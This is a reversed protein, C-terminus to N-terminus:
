GRLKQPYERCLFDWAEELGPTLGQFSISVQAFGLAPNWRAFWRQVRSVGRLYRDPDRVDVSLFAQGSTSGVWIGRIESWPMAGIGSREDRIGQEDIVVGIGGRWLYRFIMWTCFGFFLFGFGGVVAVIVDCWTAEWASLATMGLGLLFLGWMKGRSVRSVFLRQVVAESSPAVVGSGDSLEKPM